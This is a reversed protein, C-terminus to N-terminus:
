PPRPLYPAVSREFQELAECLSGALDDDECLVLRAGEPVVVDAGLM